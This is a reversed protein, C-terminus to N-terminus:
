QAPITKPTPRFKNSWDLKATLAMLLALTLIAGITIVLGTLGDFFFSYSFLGMYAIQAIASVRTLRGRTVAHVFGTVLALSVGAAILFSALLPLLDVLYAFLLQFAFFAAAIFFYHMPHMPIGQVMGILVLVTFFFLLSVPAFFAIRAAVPGPNLAKPMSMGIAQAALVDPYSWELLWGPALTQRTTPSGTGEPFDIQTFDTRMTLLFNRVRDTGGFHYRWEDTGRARYTVKLPAAAGPALIVAETIAGDEPARASAAGEGLQFSFNEYSAGNAPLQFRVYFTQTVPTPNTLTYEGSFDVLYTRHWLLGKRKPEYRLQVDVTSETPAVARRGKGSVPSLYWTDPHAQSMVPGWVEGVAEKSFSSRDHSRISIATGLVFWGVATCIFIFGIFILHIIKM